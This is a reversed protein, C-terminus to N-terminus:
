VVSKRDGAVVNRSVIHGSKTLESSLARLSKASWRLPSEPDGRTVPDILADLDKKLNPNKDVAKRRGGGAKRIRKSSQKTSPPNQIDRLGQTITNRAIGTARHVKAIGGHGLPAAESATWLRTTLEDLFPSVLEFRSAIAQEETTM